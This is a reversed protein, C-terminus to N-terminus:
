TKFTMRDFTLTVSAYWRATQRRINELVATSLERHHKLAQFTVAMTGRWTTNHICYSMHINLKVQFSLTALEAYQM